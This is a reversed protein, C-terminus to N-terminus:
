ATCGAIPQYHSDTLYIQPFTSRSALICCAISSILPDSYGGSSLCFVSYLEECAIALNEVIYPTCNYIHIYMDYLASGVAFDKTM